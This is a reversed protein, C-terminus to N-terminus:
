VSGRELSSQGRKKGGAEALDLRGKKPKMEVATREETRRKGQKGAAPMGAQRNEKKEAVSLILPERGLGKVGGRTRLM